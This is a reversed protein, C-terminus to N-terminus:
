ERAGHADAPLDRDRGTHRRYPLGLAPPPMQPTAKPEAVLWGLRPLEQTTSNVPSDCFFNRSKPHNMFDARNM